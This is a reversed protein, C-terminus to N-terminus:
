IHRFRPRQAVVNEPFRSFPLPNEGGVGWWLSPKFEIVRFHMPIVEKHNTQRFATLHLYRSFAVLYVVCVLFMIVFTCVLFVACLLM